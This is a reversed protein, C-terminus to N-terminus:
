AGVQYEDRACALVELLDGAFQTFFGADLDHRHVYRVGIGTGVQELVRFVLETGDVHQHIVGSIEFPPPEEVLM